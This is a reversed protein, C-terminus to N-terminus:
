KNAKYGVPCKVGTYIKSKGNKVCVIQKAKPKKVVQGETGTVTISQIVSVPSITTTGAQLAEIKCSGVKLLNLSNGTVSCIPSSDSQFSVIGGSSSTAILSLVKSSLSVKAPPTFNLTQATRTIEFTLPFVDSALYSSSAPTSYNLTCTGGSIISIFTGGPICVTPTASVPILVGFPSFVFPGQITLPLKASSQTAIAGVVSPYTPKIRAATITVGQVDKFSQYDSTQDTYVTFSCGGASILTLNKGDSTCTLPTGSSVKLALSPVKLEYYDSPHFVEGVKWIPAPATNYAPNIFSIGSLNNFTPGAFTSYSFNLYGNSRVLFNNLAGTVKSSTTAKLITTAYGNTGDLNLATIPNATLTYLGPFITSPINLLGHFTVDQLTANIPSDTRILYTTLTVGASNTLTALTQTTSIGTPNSVKLDVSVINAPSSIDIVDPTMTFSVVVPQSPSDALAPTIVSGVIFSAILGALIWRIPRTVVKVTDGALNLQRTQFRGSLKVIKQAYFNFVLSM